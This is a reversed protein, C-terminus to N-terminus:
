QPKHKSIMEDYEKKTILEISLLKDYAEKYKEYIETRYKTIESDYGTKRLIEDSTFYEADLSIETKEGYIGFFVKELYFIIDDVIMEIKYKLLDVEHLARSIDINDFKEILFNDVTFCIKIENLFYEQRTSQFNTITRLLPYIDPLGYLNNHSLPIGMDTFHGIYKPEHKWSGNIDYYEIPVLSLTHQNPHNKGYDSKIRTEKPDLIEFGIFKDDKINTKLFSNGYKLTQNVLTSVLEYINMMKNIEDLIHQHSEDCSIDVNKLIYESQIQFGKEIYSNSDVYSDIVDYLSYENECHECKKTELDEFRETKLRNPKQCKPCLVVITEFKDM